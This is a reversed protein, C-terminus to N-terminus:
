CCRFPCALIAAPATFNVPTTAVIKVVQRTYGNGITMQQNGFALTQAVNDSM